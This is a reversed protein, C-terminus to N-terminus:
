QEDDEGAEKRLKKLANQYMWTITGLPKNMAKAIDKHKEDLVVYRIVVEREENNLAQMLQNLYYSKESHSETKPLLFDEADEPMMVERKQKHYQNIALNKAMTGLWAKFSKKPKYKDINELMKLYTDQMIDETLSVDKLIVLITYYVHTKTITYITDFVTRDGNQLKKVLHQLEKDDM